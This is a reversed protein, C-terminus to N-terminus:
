THTALPSIFGEPKVTLVSCRVQRLVADATDGMLLATLNRAVTGLVLVDPEIEAATALIVSSPLGEDFHLKPQIPLGARRLLDDLGKRAAQQTQAIYEILREEPMRGRLLEEGPTNWAAVVHLEGEDQETLSAALELIVRNLTKHAADDALPDVAALVCKQKRPTDPVLLWVPCPCNRLLRMDVSGVLLTKHDSTGRADKVVLDFEGRIAERVVEIAPRGHLLETEVEVGKRAHEKALTQLRLRQEQELLQSHEKHMLGLWGRSTDVVTVLKLIARNREAVDFARVLAVQRKTLPDVLCLIRLFRKM